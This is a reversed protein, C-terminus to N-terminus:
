ATPQCSPAGCNEYGNPDSEPPAFLPNGPAEAYPPEFSTKSEPLYLGEAAIASHSCGKQAAPLVASAPRILGNVDLHTAVYPGTAGAVALLWLVALTSGAHQPCRRSDALGPASSM